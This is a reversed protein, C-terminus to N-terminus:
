QANGSRLGKSVQVHYESLRSVKLGFGLELIDFLADTEGVQFQGGIRIAELEPDVLEIYIPTYRGVEKVVEALPEGAYILQGELWALQRKLEATKYETVTYDTTASVEKPIVVSQGATLSGLVEGDAPDATPGPSSAPKDAEADNRPHKKDMSVVALEVKGESVIVKVAQDQRFVSFATGIARVRRTGAYVEFPRDPNSEVEFHAEGKLLTIRRARDSFNVAVESDTNLSLVSGDALTYSAQEGLATQYSVSAPALLLVWAIVAMSGMAATASILQRPKALEALENLNRGTLSLLLLLPSLLWVMVAAVTGASANHRKEAPMQLASLQDMANWQRALHSFTQKHQPSLVLWRKFAQLQDETPPTDGELKIVWEMAEREIVQSDSDPKDPFEIVNPEM